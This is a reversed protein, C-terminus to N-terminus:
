RSFGCCLFTAVAVCVIRVEEKTIRHITFKGKVDYLLRFFEGTKPITIVDMFGAPFNVDTRVKNDVLILRQMVIATVEKRTFAYKLRNRLLIVLPLCERLKHPGAVVVM